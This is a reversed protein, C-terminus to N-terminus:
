RFHSLMVADALSRGRALLLQKGDPSFTMSWIELSNFNTIQKAPAPTSGATGVPQEWLNSTNSVSDTVIYIVGRGDPTWAIRNQGQSMSQSQYIRYSSQVAGNSADLINVMLHPTDVWDIVAVRKGDPSIAPEVYSKDTVQMANKGDTGVRWLRTQGNAVHDYFVTKGDPSCSPFIDGRDSTLQTLNGGNDDARMLGQKTMFVFYGTGGCSSPGAAGALSASVSESEGTSASIKGLGIQGSTYYGYIVDGKPTWAAGLYGQSPGSNQPIEHAEATALNAVNGSILWLASGFGAQITVLKSGDATISSDVYFNLDNTIKRLAGSPYSIEWVQSNHGVPDQAISGETIIGSGDPLWSIQFLSNWDTNGLRTQKGNQADITEVVASSFFNSPLLGVAIRRGDPSWAPGGGGSSVSEFSTPNHVAALARVNSGDANAVMLSSTGAESSDRVFAIQSGDPSIGIPSDLDSLITRPPGGVSPMQELIRQGGKPQVVGYLYNGDRSFTLSGNDYTAASPPAVQVASGTAMQRIWVSEQTGNVVYALWKGDPSIAAPGVDGSTTLQSIAMQEFAYPTPAPSHFRFWVYRALLVLVLLLAIGAGAWYWRPDRFLGGVPHGDSRGSKSAPEGEAPRENPTWPIQVSKHTFSSSQPAGSSTGSVETRVGQSSVTSMSARSSDADRKLRKLNARMEAATQYRLDRDKELAQGIIEELKPPLNPNLESPAQPMRNLIMDFIVASTNGSFPPQGTAMEYLIAGFSFLDSRTDIEEGRAQEPSMYSVTGLLSGPSTMLNDSTVDASPLRSAAAGVARGQKALGFDLIKAQGRSTIFVNAPKLDRHVIGRSHAADLAEAVQIAIDLLVDNPLPRGSVRERLTQGELLEMVLFREGDREGIDYLVCIGPHNLGSIVRAEREFRDLAVPDRRLDASLFKLAVMRGLRTDEAKYVEGMGGSGLKEIIRYHVVTEGLM